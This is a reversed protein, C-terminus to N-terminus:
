EGHQALVARCEALMGRVVAADADLQQLTEVFTQQQRLADYATADDGARIAAMARTEFEGARTAETRLRAEIAALDAELAHAADRLAVVPDREAPSDPCMGRIKAKWATVAADIHRDFATM